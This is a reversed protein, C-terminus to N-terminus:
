IAPASGGSDVLRDRAGEELSKATEVAEEWALKSMRTVNLYMGWAWGWLRNKALGRYRTRRGGQRQQYAFQREIDLRAIQAAQGEESAQRVRAKETLPYHRDVSLQRGRKQKSCRGRLPCNECQTKTFQFVWAHTAKRWSPCESLQGAPCLALTPVGEGDFEVAFDAVSFKGQKGGKPTPAAIQDTIQASDLYARNAGSQYKSDAVVESPASGVNELHGEVMGVLAESDDTNGPLVGVHTVIGHADDVALQESYGAQVQKGRKKRGWRADPDVDSLLDDKKVNRKGHNASRELADNLLELSESQAATPRYLGELTEAVLEALALWEQLLLKRFDAGLQYSKDERLADHEARLASVDMEGIELSKLARTIIRDLLPRFGPVAIDAQVNFSDIMLRRNSVLKRDLAQRVFGQFVRKFREEGLRGRFKTLSTPHPLDHNWDLGLFFRFAHDTQAREIVARDSLKYQLQLFILRLLVEPDYAPRGNDEHYLDAVLDHVFSFDVAAHIRRLLHGQPVYASGIVDDYLSPTHPLNRHQL